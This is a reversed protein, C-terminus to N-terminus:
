PSQKTRDPNLFNKELIYIVFYSLSFFVRDVTLSSGQAWLNLALAKQSVSSDLCSCMM